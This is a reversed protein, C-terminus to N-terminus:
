QMKIMKRFALETGAQLRYFYVGSGVQRGQDDRGDWGMQHDGAQLSANLLTRIEQGMLNYIILSVPIASDKPLTFDIRTSPNFPNPFNQGLRFARPQDVRVEMSESYAFSGDSDIQKLRYLYTGSEIVEDRYSYKKEDASTGAGKIFTLKQWETQGKAQREIEFGYNNTESATAWSLEVKSGVQGAVFSALEVPVVFQRAMVNIVLPNNAQNALSDGLAATHNPGLYYGTTTIGFTGVIGTTSTIRIGSDGYSRQDGTDGADVASSDKYFLQQIDGAVPVNAITAITGHSGRTLFWNTGPVSLNKNIVDSYGDVAINPNNNSHFAAGIINSNLDMSQRLEEMGNVALLSKTSTNIQASYPYYYSVFVVSDPVFSFSLDFRISRIVRVPGKSYKIWMANLSNETGNFPYAPSGMLHGSYRLKWRDLIDQGSGGVAAKISLFDPISSSNNGFVYSQGKITDNYSSALAPVYSMYDQVSPDKSLTTSRYVYAWAKGSPNKSNDQAKVQYRPYLLSENNNIWLYDAVSDGMDAAMLCIEDVADLTNNKIGWYGNEDTREDIQFPIQKWASNKYVYVYLQNIPVNQFAPLQGGAITVPDYNRSLNAAAYASDFLCFCLSCMTILTAIIGLIVQKMTKGKGRHYFFRTFYAIGIGSLMM